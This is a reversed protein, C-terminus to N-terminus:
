CIPDVSCKLTRKSEPCRMLEVDGAVEEVFEADFEAVAM